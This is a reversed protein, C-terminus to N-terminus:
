LLTFNLAMRRDMLFVLNLVLRFFYAGVSSFYASVSCYKCTAQVPERELRKLLAFLLTYSFSIDHNKCLLLAQLLKIFRYFGPLFICYAYYWLLCKNTGTKVSLLLGHFVLVLTVSHLFLPVRNRWMCLALEQLRNLM